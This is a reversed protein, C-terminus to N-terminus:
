LDSFSVAAAEAAAKKQAVKRVSKIEEAIKRNKEAAAKAIEQKQKEIQAPTLQDTKGENRLLSARFLPLKQM